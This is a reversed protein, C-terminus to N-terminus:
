KDPPLMSIPQEATNGLAETVQASIHVHTHTYTLFPFISRMPLLFVDLISSEVRLHVM